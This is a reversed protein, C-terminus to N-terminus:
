LLHDVRFGFDQNQLHLITQVFLAASVTLVLSLAIQGIVLLKRFLHQVPASAGRAGEKLAEVLNIKTNLIAPAMGFILTTALATLLAFLLVRWDLSIDALEPISAPHERRILMDIAEAVFVGSGAGLLSLMMTEVLIQRVLTLRTAGLASRMAFERHRGTNRALLLAALNLCAILLILIVAGMLLYLQPRLEATRANVLPQVAVGIGRDIPYASALGAAVTDLDAQAQQMTVGKRLLGVATFGREARETDNWIGPVPVFPEWVALSHGIGRLWGPIPQPLVGIISYPEGNITMTRGLIAPDRAFHSQWFSETILAVHNRGPLGEDETFLRGMIPNIGLAQFLDVNGLGVNINEANDSSKSIIVNKRWQDFVALHEFTHNQRAFDRSDLPSPGVPENHIVSYIRVLRDAHEFPLQRLLLASLVSFVASNAGIGLALTLVATLTFSPTNALQRLAFRFDRGLQRAWLADRQIRYNEKIQTVAGFERRAEMRADEASLGSKLKEEVLLDIHATFEEDLEEDLSQRRFIASCRSFLIRFWDM